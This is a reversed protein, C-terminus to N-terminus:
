LHKRTEFGGGTNQKLAFLFVFLAIGDRGNCGFFHRLDLLEERAVLEEDETMGTRPCREKHAERAQVGFHMAIILRM